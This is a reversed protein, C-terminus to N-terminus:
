GKLIHGEDKDEECDKHRGTDYDQLTDYRDGMPQYRNSVHEDSACTSSGDMKRYLDAIEKANDALKRDYKSDVSTLITCFCENKDRCIGESKLFDGWEFAVQNSWARINRSKMWGRLVSLRSRMCEVFNRQEELLKRVKHERPGVVNDKKIEEYVAETSKLKATMDDLADLCKQFNGKLYEGIIRNRREIAAILAAENEDASYHFHPWFRWTEYSLTGMVVAAIATVAAALLTCCMQPFVCDMSM